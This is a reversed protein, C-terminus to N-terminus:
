FKCTKLSIQENKEEFGRFFNKMILVNGVPCTHRKTCENSIQCKQFAVCVAFYATESEDNLIFIDTLQQSQMCYLCSYHLCHRDFIRLMVRFTYSARHMHHSAFFAFYIAAILKDPYKNSTITIAAHFFGCTFFDILSISRFSAVYDLM